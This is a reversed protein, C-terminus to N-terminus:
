KNVYDKLPVEEHSRAFKVLGALVLGTVMEVSPTEDIGFFHKVFLAIGAVVALIGVLEACHILTSKLAEM